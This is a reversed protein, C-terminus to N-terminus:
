TNSGDGGIYRQQVGWGASLLAPQLCGAAAQRRQDGGSEDAAAAVAHLGHQWARRPRSVFEM